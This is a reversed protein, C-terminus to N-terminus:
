SEQRKKFDQIFKNQKNRDTLRTISYVDTGQRTSKITKVESLLKEHIQKSLLLEKHAIKAIRKGLTLTNGVPTFLLYNDKKQVILEGSNVALGFNIKQVFKKNHEILRKGITSAVEIAKKENKFTKTVIPAFIGIIFGETFYLKGGQNKIESIAKEITQWANSKAKLLQERNKLKLVMVASNQKHGKLVLSHIADAKKSITKPATEKIEAGSHKDKVELDKGPEIRRKRLKGLKLKETIKKMSLVFKGKGKRKNKYMMFIIVALIVLLILWLISKGVGGISLGERVESLGIARGTLAVRTNLFENKGDEVEINYEGRPASLKFKISEDLELNVKETRSQGGITVQVPKTYPVNGINTVILTDNTMEFRAEQNVKVYFQKEEYLDGLSAEIKWYGYPAKKILEFDQEVGVDSIFEKSINGSPERLSIDVTQNGIEHGGQDYSKINFVLTEGPTFDLNNTIIELSSPIQNIDFYVEAFGQNIKNGESDKEYSKAELKHLGSYIDKPLALLGSFSGNTIDEIKTENNASLRVEIFGEIPKENEKIATGHFELATGPDFAIDALHIELYSQNSLYFTSSTITQEDFTASVLCDGAAIGEELPWVIPVEEGHASDLYNVYIKKVVDGCNLDVDMIGKGNILLSFYLDDGINYTSDPQENFSVQAIASTIFLISFVALILLLAVEKKM